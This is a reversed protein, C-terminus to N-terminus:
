EPHEALIREAVERSHAEEKGARRLWARHITASLDWVGQPKVLYDFAGERLARRADPVSPHGTLVVVQLLPDSERLVNMLTLGHMGAMVVDVLAVDFRRHSALAVAQTSDYAVAVRMGQRELAPVLAAVLDRDDDVFLLEIPHGGAAEEVKRGEAGHRAARRAVDALADVDFPKSLYDYIGERSTEFAQQVNGHGTLIVVPLDPARRQIEHFVGVGDLGPMKVDLVVVDFDEKGILELANSGNEAQSVAFGRRELGPTVAERFDREDDVLLLRVQTEEAIM